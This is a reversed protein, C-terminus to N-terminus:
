KLEEEVYTNIIETISGDRKFGLKDAKETSFHYPWTMVISQIFPDPEFYVLNTIKKGGIEELNKIIEEVSVTIGPLNVIRSKGFDPAHIQAALIFNEIVKKPSLLWIKTDMAVPCIAKIGQLPERIISSVFSSTAANPKGPRVVITPLRLVRGDIFGRRSYDNILLEAMAKQTGYSSQPNAAVQDTIIDPLDGGFVACSSAFILIPKQKLERCLELLQYTAQFNVQMGLEFDREAEGSVVAALHFIVDTPKDFLSQIVKKDSFNGEVLELRADEPYAAPFSQDFLVLSTIEIPPSENAIFYGQNLLTLALRRGLFGGGGFIIIRM